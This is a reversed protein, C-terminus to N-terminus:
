RCSEAIKEREDKSEVPRPLDAQRAQDRRRRWWVTLVFIPMFIMMEYTSIDLAREFIPGLPEIGPAPYFEFYDMIGFKYKVSSFPWLLAAGGFERKTMIDLLGHSLAALTYVLFSKIRGQLMLAASALGICVSFLISHTFGGHSQLHFGLVWSFILDFDPIIAISAGMALAKWDKRLSIDERSAAVISAGILGHAVPLPM